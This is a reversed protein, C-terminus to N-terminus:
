LTLQRRKHAVSSPSRDLHKAIWGRKKEPHNILFAVEGASWERRGHHDAIAILLREAAARKVRLYPLCCQILHEVQHVGGLTWIWVAHKQRYAYRPECRFLSGIGFWEDRIGKLLGEGDNGESQSISVNFRNGAIGISGEGDLLGATYCIIELSPTRYHQM